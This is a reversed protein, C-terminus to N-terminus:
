FNMSSRWFKVLESRRVERLTNSKFKRSSKNYIIANIKTNFFLGTFRSIGVVIQPNEFGPEIKMGIKFRSNGLDSELNLDLGNNKNNLFIATTLDTTHYLEFWTKGIILESPRVDKYTHAQIFSENTESVDLSVGGISFESLNNQHLMLNVNFLNSNNVLKNFSLNAGFTSTYGSIAQGGLSINKTLNKSYSLYHKDQNIEFNIQSFKKNSLSIGKDSINSLYFLDSSDQYSKASEFAAKPITLEFRDFRGLSPLIKIRDQSPYKKFNTDITKSLSASNASYDLYKIENAYMMKSTFLCLVFIVALFKNWSDLM